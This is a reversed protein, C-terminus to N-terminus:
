LRGNPHGTNENKAISGSQTLVRVDGYRVLFPSVYSKKVRQVVCTEPKTNIAISDTAKTVM